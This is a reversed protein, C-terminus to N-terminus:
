ANPSDTDKVSLTVYYRKNKDLKNTPLYISKRNNGHTVEVAVGSSTSKGDGAKHEITVDGHTAPNLPCIEPLYFSSMAGRSKAPGFGYKPMTHHNMM